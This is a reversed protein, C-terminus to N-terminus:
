GYVVEDMLASQLWVDATTADGNDTKADAWHQTHNKAMLKEGQLIGAYTLNGIEEGTQIDHFAIKTGAKLAEWTRISLPEHRLNPTADEIQECAKQKLLYWYNSGGELATVLLDCRQEDTLAFENVTTDTHSQSTSRNTFGQLIVGGEPLQKVKCIEIDEADRLSIAQTLSLPVYYFNYQDATIVQLYHQGKVDFIGLSATILSNM